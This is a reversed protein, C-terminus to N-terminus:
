KALLEKILKETKETYKTYYEGTGPGSFGTHILVVKGDKDIFITTPFSVIENLMNFKTEAIHKDAFGGELFTFDLDHNEKLKRIAAVRRESTKPTEYGISIIELGDKHYKEYLKKFFLTEDLCNPCWTGMIQIIVVKDKTDANPYHYDKGYIDKLDFIVPLNNVVFTISDPNRLQSQKNKAAIWDSVWHNGSYFRGQISDKGASLNGTFLFAHSGDFCSLEFTKGDNKGALFRYDGTETLFTGILLSGKQEFVGLAPEGNESNPEFVTAWKGTFYDPVNITDSNEPSFIAKFPIKYHDSKAKNYWFGSMETKSDLHIRIFSKFNPFVYDISDPSSKNGYLVFKEEGNHISIIQFGDSGNDESLTMLFPLVTATNLQLFGFWTGPSVGAKANNILLIFALISFFVKM